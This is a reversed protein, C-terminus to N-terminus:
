LDPVPSLTDPSTPFHRFLSDKMLRAAVPTLYLSIIPLYRELALSPSPITFAAGFDLGPVSHGPLSHLTGIGRQLLVIFLYPLILRRWPGCTYQVESRFSAGYLDSM